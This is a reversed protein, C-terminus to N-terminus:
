GESHQDTRLPREGTLAPRPLRPSPRCLAARGADARGSGSGAVPHLGGRPQRRPDAAAGGAATRRDARHWLGGHAAGDPQHGPGPAPPTGGADRLLHHRHLAPGAVPQQRRLGSRDAAVPLGPHQVVYCAALMLRRDISLPVLRTMLAGVIVGFGFAPWFYDSWHSDPLAARAIVPLFTATIIYGFGALGYALVFIGQEAMQGPTAHKTGSESTSAIPPAEQGQFVPWVMATLAAAMLGFVWWATASHHGQAAMASAALGSGAIGIGPGTYIIGGLSARGLRALQGLCWGSACVFVIGTIYGAGFRLWPWSAPVPLAMAVTLLATITLGYRTLAALGPMGTGLRRRLWPMGMCSLAGLLYGLYNATALLSGQELTIVGDRLMMPLIPTFAFRGIGM